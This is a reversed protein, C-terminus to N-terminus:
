YGREGLERRFLKNGKSDLVTLVLRHPAEINAVFPVRSGDQLKLGHINAVPQSGAPLPSGHRKVKKVLFTGFLKGKKRELTEYSGLVTYGGADSIHTARGADVDACNVPGWYRWELSHDKGWLITFDYYADGVKERTLYEGPPINASPAAWATAALLLISLLTRM